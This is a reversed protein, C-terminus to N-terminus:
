STAPVIVSAAKRIRNMVALGEARESIGEMLIVDVKLSDLDRLAKFLGRAIVDPHVEDGLRYIAFDRNTSGDQKVGDEAVGNPAQFVKLDSPYTFTSHTNIIAVRKGNSIEEKFKNLVDNMLQQVNSPEEFLIVRASPSYHTYKLGPTPPAQELHTGHVKKEYIQIDPVFKQLKEFTIGGPRLILPPTSNLDIVTSEVGVDCAGGDVICPIRGKMDELVHHASTPSPRGSVNASPAALPLNSLSILKSAIPHSPMRVAVTELKATVSDAVRSSKKFLITLPGPWFTKCIQSAISGEKPFAEPAVLERLMEMSSIHVILPNDSPRGKAKFIKKVANDDLANAGLGYVTETPFAVIEGKKLLEVAPELEKDEFKDRDVKLVKTTVSENQMTHEMQHQTHFTRSTSTLRQVTSCIQQKVSLARYLRLVSLCHLM